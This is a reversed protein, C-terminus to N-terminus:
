LLINTDEKLYHFNLKEMLECNGWGSLTFKKKKKKITKYWGMDCTKTQHYHSLALM